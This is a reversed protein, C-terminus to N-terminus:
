IHKDCVYVYCDMWLFARAGGSYACAFYRTQTSQAHTSVCARCDATNKPHARACAHKLAKDARMANTSTHATPRVPPCATPRTHERLQPAFPECATGLMANEM